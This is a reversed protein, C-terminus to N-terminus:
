NCACCIFLYRQASSATVFLVNYDRSPKCNQMDPLVFLVTAASLWLNVRVCHEAFHSAKMYNWMKRERVRERLWIKLARIRWKWKSNLLIRKHDHSVGREDYTLRNNDDNCVSCLSIHTHTCWWWWWRLLRVNLETCFSLICVFAKAALLKNQFHLNHLLYRSWIWNHVLVLIQLLLRKAQSLM